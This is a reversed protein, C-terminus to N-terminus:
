IPTVGHGATSNLPTIGRFHTDIVIKSHPEPLTWENKTDVLLSPHGSFTVTAVLDDRSKSPDSALSHVRPQCTDGLCAALLDAIDQPESNDAPLGRVRYTKPTASTSSAAM